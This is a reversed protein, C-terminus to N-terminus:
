FADIEWVDVVQREQIVFCKRYHNVTTCCHSPIVWVKEGIQPAPEQDVLWQLHEESFNPKKLHPYHALEPSSFETGLGKLGVDLVIREANPRSLTTALVFLTNAYAPALQRYTTDSYVYSGAQIETLVGNQLHLSANGTGAGSIRPIPTVGQVADVVARLIQDSGEVTRRRQELDPIYSTGGYYAQIGGFKLNSCELIRETLSVAEAPPQAGCRRGGSDVEVLVEFVCGQERAVEQAIQIGYLSDVAFKLSCVRSLSALRELKERSVIQNAILIDQIGGAAMAEAEGLTACTVGIAGAEIQLRALQSSKHTKIHPRLAGGQATVESQMKALNSKLGPLDVLLAPTPIEDVPRGIWPAALSIHPNNNQM